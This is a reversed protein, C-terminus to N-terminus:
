PCHHGMRSPQPALSAKLTCHCQDLASISTVLFQCKMKMINVESLDLNGLALSSRTYLKQPIWRKTTCCVLIAITRIIPSWLLYILKDNCAVQRSGTSWWENMWKTTQRAVPGFGRGFRATLMTRHLAEEKLHSHRRREKLDNLLKRSRRGWRGTVQIGGKIKGEIVQQLLCNRLM